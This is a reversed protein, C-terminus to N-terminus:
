KVEEYDLNDFNYRPIQVVVDGERQPIKHVRVSGVTVKGSKDDLWFDIDYFEDRSGQRRFDTCAFYRGDQKLRRVPQHIEVFELALTAGTKDDQLTYIGNHERRTQAIHEHLASMVEWARKEETEGPHESAPIWWWAVPMRTAMVWTDGDKRPGKQIRIDMLELGDDKPKLWFDLAYQKEPTDKLHFIVNPFFGYGHISRVLRIDEFELALNDGSRNDRFVFVGGNAQVNKEIIAKVATRVEEQSIQDMSREAAANANANFFDRAKKLHDEPTTLFTEKAELTGFCYKKGDQAVWHITCDTQVRRGHALSMACQDALEGDMASAVVALAIWM